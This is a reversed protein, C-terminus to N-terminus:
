AFGVTIITESLTVLHISCNTAANSPFCSKGPSQVNGRLYKNVVFTFITVMTSFGASVLEVLHDLSADGTISVSVDPVGGHPASLPDNTYDEQQFHRVEDWDHFFNALALSLSMRCFLQGIRKLLALALFTLSLSLLLLQICQSTMKSPIRRLFLVHTPFITVNLYPRYNLECYRTFTLERNELLIGHKQLVNVSPFHCLPYSPSQVIKTDKRYM